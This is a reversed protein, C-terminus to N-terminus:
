QEAYELFLRRCFGGRQARKGAAVTLLEEWTMGAAAAIVQLVELVDALESRLDGPAATSAERAEEVLKALLAAVFEDDNDM